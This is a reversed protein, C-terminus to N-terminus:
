QERPLGFLIGEALFVRRGQLAHRQRWQAFLRQSTYTTRSASVADCQSPSRVANLSPFQLTIFSAIFFLSMRSVAATVFQPVTECLRGRMPFM